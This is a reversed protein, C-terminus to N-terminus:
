DDEVAPRVVGILAVDGERAELLASWPLDTELRALFATKMVVRAGTLREIVEECAPNHGLLLLTGVEGPAATAVRIMDDPRPLYLEALLRSPWREGAAVHMRELTERTREADSCLVLDPRLGTAPLREGMEAAARRGREDLPRQHDHFDGRWSSKAHRMILLSRPM